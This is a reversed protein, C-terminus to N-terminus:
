LLTVLTPGGDTYLTVMLAGLPTSIATLGVLRKKVRGNCFRLKLTTTFAFGM